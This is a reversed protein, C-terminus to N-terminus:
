ISLNNEKDVNLQALEILTKGGQYLHNVDM